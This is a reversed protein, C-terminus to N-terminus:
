HGRVRLKRKSRILLYHRLQFATPPSRGGGLPSSRSIANDAHLAAIRSKVSTRLTLILHRREQIRQDPVLNVADSEFGDRISHCEPGCTM